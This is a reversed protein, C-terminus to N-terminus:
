GGCGFPSNCRSYQVQGPYSPMQFELGSSIQAQPRAGLSDSSAPYNTGDDKVWVVSGSSNSPVRDRLTGARDAYAYLKGDNSSLFALYDGKENTVPGKESKQQTATKEEAAPTPAPVTIEVEAKVEPKEPETTKHGALQSEIKAFRSENEAQAKKLAASVEEVTGTLAVHSAKLDAISKENQELRATLPQLKQEVAASITAVDAPTLAPSSQSVQQTQAQTQQPTTNKNGSSAADPSMLFGLILAASAGLGYFMNTFM